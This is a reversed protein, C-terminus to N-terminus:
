CRWGVSGAHARVSEDWNQTTDACGIWPKPTQFVSNNLASSNSAAKLWCNWRPSPTGAAM